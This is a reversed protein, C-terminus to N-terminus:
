QLVGKLCAELTALDEVNYIIVNEDINKILGSLVKKPGVEVFTNIGDSAMRKISDSWLVPSTVQKILLEKIKSAERVYDATVNSVVPVEADKIEIKSLEISLREAAPKMLSSHFPASVALEITRKAGAEKALKMAAAVAEKKGSIVVQVPSNINAAEAGSARAAEKVKEVDLGMIAAMSGTGQPCAEQMFKGRLHVIKVLDEFSIARAAYLASYEGLSHGALAEPKVGKERLVEFCIASVTFIAPQTIATKKLEEEPGERCLKELDFGLAKNARKFLDEGIKFHKSLEAGMGVSQSGQGPFVFALKKM